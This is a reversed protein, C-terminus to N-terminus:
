HKYEKLLELKKPFPLAIFAQASLEKTHILWTLLAESLNELKSLFTNAVQELEHPVPIDASIVGWGDYYYFEYTENHIYWAQHWWFSRDVVDMEGLERDYVETVQTEKIAIEGLYTLKKKSM